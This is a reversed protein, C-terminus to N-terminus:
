NQIDMDNEQEKVKEIIEKIKEYIEGDESENDMIEDFFGNNKQEKDAEIITRKGCAWEILSIAWVADEGEVNKICKIAEDMDAIRGHGKPLPTGNAILHEAWIMPKKSNKIIDYEEEPIKIVLEIDAM